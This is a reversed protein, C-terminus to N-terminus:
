AARELRGATDNAAELGMRDLGIDQLARRDLRELSQQKNRGYVARTQIGISDRSVGIDSLMHDSLGKLAARTAAQRRWAILAATVTRFGAGIAASLRGMQHMVTRSRLVRGRAVMREVDTYSLPGSAQTMLVLGTGSRTDFINEMDKYYM